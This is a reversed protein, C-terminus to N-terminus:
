LGQATLRDVVENFRVAAILPAEDVQTRARLAREELM